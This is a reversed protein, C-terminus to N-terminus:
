HFSQSDEKMVTKVTNQIYETWRSFIGDRHMPTVDRGIIKKKKGYLHIGEKGQFKYLEM